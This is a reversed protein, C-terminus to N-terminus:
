YAVTSDKAIGLALIVSWVAEMDSESEAVVPETDVAGHGEMPIPYYAMGSQATAALVQSWQWSRGSDSQVAFTETETSPNIAAEVSHDQSPALAIWALVLAIATLAMMRFISKGRLPTGGVGRVSDKREFMIIMENHM